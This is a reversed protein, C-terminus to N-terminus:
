CTGTLFVKFVQRRGTMGYARIELLLNDSKPYFRIKSKYKITIKLFILANEINKSGSIHEINPKIQWEIESDITIQFLNQKYIWLLWFCIM